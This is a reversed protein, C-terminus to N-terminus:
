RRKLHGENRIKREEEKGKEGMTDNLLQDEGFALPTGVAVNTNTNDFFTPLNRYGGGRGEECTKSGFGGYGGNSTSVCSREDRGREPKESKHQAKGRTFLNV